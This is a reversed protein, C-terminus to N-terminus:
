RVVDNQISQSQFPSNVANRPPVLTAPVATISKNEMNNVVATITFLISFNLATFM